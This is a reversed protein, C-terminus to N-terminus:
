FASRKAPMPHPANHLQSKHRSTVCFLEVFGMTNELKNHRLIESRVFQLHSNFFHPLKRAALRKERFIFSYNRM